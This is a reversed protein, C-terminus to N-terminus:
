NFYSSGKECCIFKPQKITGVAYWNKISWAVIGLLEYNLTQATWHYKNTVSINVNEAYINLM